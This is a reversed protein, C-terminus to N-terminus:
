RRSKEQYIGGVSEHQISLKLFGKDGYVLYMTWPAIVSVDGWGASPDATTAGQKNLIDPIVDPVEGGPKQDTAVDKLWKTFFSSVDLNFAATRLFGSCRRGDWVNTEKRATQQFM